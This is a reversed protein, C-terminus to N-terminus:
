LAGPRRSGQGFHSPLVVRWGDDGKHLTVADKYRHGKTAARGTLVVHATAETEREDCSLVHIAEPEFGLGTRYSQALRTFQQSSCRKQTQPDLAAYSKSWDQQVLAQYYAQVCEKAGTGPPQEPSGSCGTLVGGLLLGWLWCREVTM